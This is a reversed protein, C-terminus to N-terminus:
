KVELKYASGAMGTVYLINRTHDWAYDTRLWVPDRDGRWADEIRRLESIKRWNQGANETHYVGDETVVVIHSADQGFFPGKRVM